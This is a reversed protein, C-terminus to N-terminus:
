SKWGAWCTGSAKRPLGMKALISFWIYSSYGCKFFLHDVDESAASCLPCTTSQIIGKNQLRQLTPLKNLLALWATYSHRPIQGPDWVWGKWSVLPKPSRLYNWAAKSNLTGSKSKKWIPIDARNGGMRIKIIDEWVSLYAPPWRNSTSWKGNSFLKNVPTSDTPGWHIAM